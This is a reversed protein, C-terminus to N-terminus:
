PIIYFIKKGIRMFLQTNLQKISTKDVLNPNVLTLRIRKSNPVIHCSEINNVGGLSNVIAQSLKIKDVKNIYVSVFKSQNTEKQIRILIKKSKKKNQLNFWNYIYM